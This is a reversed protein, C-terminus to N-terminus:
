QTRGFNRLEEATLPAGISGADILRRRVAIAGESNPCPQWNVGIFNSGANPGTKIKSCFTFGAVLMGRGPQSPGVLDAYTAKIAAAKEDVTMPAGNDHAMTEYDIGLLGLIFRQVNGPAAEAGGGSFNVVNGVITQVPNPQIGPREPDDTPRAEVVGLEIIFCHGRRKDESLINRVEWTYIGDRINPRRVATPQARAIKDMIAPNIPRPAAQTAANTM